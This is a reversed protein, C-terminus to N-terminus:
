SINQVDIKINNSIENIIINIHKVTINIDKDDKYKSEIFDMGEIRCAIRIIQRKKEKPLKNLQKLQDKAGIPWMGSGVVPLVDSILIGVEEWNLNLNEWNIDVEEWNWYTFTAM